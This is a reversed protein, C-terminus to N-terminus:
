PEIPFITFLDAILERQRAFLRSSTVSLAESLVHVGNLVVKFRDRELKRQSEELYEYGTLCRKKADELAARRSRFTERLTILRSREEELKKRQEAIENEYRNLRLSRSNKERELLLKSKERELIAEISDM